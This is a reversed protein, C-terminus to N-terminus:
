KGAAAAECAAKPPGSFQACHSIDGAPPAMTPDGMPPGGPAGTPPAMTPDGMPPAGPATPPAMTPDGMPPAGPAGTPSQADKTGMGFFRKVREGMSPKDAADGMPAATPPMNPDGAPPAMGPDGMPAATPPMNPDGAPPAMGPDGMPAATPPAMTQGTTPDVNTDGQPPAAVTEGTTPDVSQAEVTIAQLVVVALGVMLFYVLKNMVEGGKLSTCLNLFYAKIEGVFSYSKLLFRSGEENSTLTLLKLVGNICSAKMEKLSRLALFQLNGSFMV